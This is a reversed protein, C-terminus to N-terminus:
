FEMEIYQPNNVPNYNEDKISANIFTTFENEEIGYGEHIHGFIHLKPKIDLVRSLLHKCGVHKDEYTAHDFCRDLIGQPPGHTVLIDINTPTSYWHGQSDEDNKMFAWNMFPPTIPSGYIKVGDYVFLENILVKVNPVEELIEVMKDVKEPDDFSLDHNGPVYIIQDFKNEYRKFFKALNKVEHEYGMSTADGSHILIDGDPLSTVPIYTGHTDSIMVIKM